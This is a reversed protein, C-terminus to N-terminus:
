FRVVYKWDVYENGGTGLEGEEKAGRRECGVNKPHEELVDVGRM